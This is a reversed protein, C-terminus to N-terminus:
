LDATLVTWFLLNASHKLKGWHINTNACIDGSIEIFDFLNCKWLQLFFNRWRSQEKESFHSGLHRSIVTGFHCQYQVNGKYIGSVDFNAPYFSVLNEHKNIKMDTYGRVLSLSKAKSICIIFLSNFQSSFSSSENLLFCCLLHGQIGICDVRELVSVTPVLILRRKISTDTKHLTPRTQIFFWFNSKHSLIYTSDNVTADRM